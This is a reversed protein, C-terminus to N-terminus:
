VTDSLSGAAALLVSQHVVAHGVCSGVSAVSEEGARGRPHLYRIALAKPEINARHAISVTSYARNTPAHLGSPAAVAPLLGLAQQLLLIVLLNAVQRQLDVLQLLYSARGNIYSPNTPMDDSVM